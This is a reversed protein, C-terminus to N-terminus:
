ANEGPTRRAPRRTISPVQSSNGLVRMGEAAAFGNTADGALAPAVMTRGLISRRSPQKLDRTGNNGFHGDVSSFGANGSSFTVIHAFQPISHSRALEVYM